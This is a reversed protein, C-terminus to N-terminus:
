SPKQGMTLCARREQDPVAREGLLITPLPNLREGNVTATLTAASNTAAM